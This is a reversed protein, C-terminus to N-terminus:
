LRQFRQGNQLIDPNSLETGYTIPGYKFQEENEIPLPHHRFVIHSVNDILSQDAADYGRLNQYIKTADVAICKFRGSDIFLNVFEDLSGKFRCNSGNRGDNAAEIMGPKHFYSIKLVDDM